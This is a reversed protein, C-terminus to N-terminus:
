SLGPLAAAAAVRVASCVKALRADEQCQYLGAGARPERGAGRGVGSGAPAAGASVVM